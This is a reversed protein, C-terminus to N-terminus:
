AKPGIEPRDRRVWAMFVQVLIGFVALGGGLKVGTRGGLYTAFGVPGCEGSRRAFFDPTINGAVFGFLGGMIMGALAGASVILFVKWWKM